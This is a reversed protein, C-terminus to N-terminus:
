SGASTRVALSEDSASSAAGRSSARGQSALSARKGRGDLTNRESAAACLWARGMVQQTADLGWDDVGPEPPWDRRGQFRLVGSPVPAKPMAPSGPAYRQQVASGACWQARAIRPSTRCRTRCAVPGSTAQDLELPFLLCSRALAVPPRVVTTHGMLVEHILQSRWASRARSSSSDRGERAACFAAFAPVGGCARVARARLRWCLHTPHVGKGHIM